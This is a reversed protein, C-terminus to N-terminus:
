WLRPALVPVEEWGYDTAKFTRWSSDPQLFKSLKALNGTMGDAMLLLQRRVWGRPEIAGIPLKM